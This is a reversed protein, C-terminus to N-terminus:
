GRSTSGGKGEGAGPYRTSKSISGKEGRRKRKSGREYLYRGLSTRKLLVERGRGWVGHAKGKEHLEEEKTMGILLKERQPEGGRKGTTLIGDRYSTHHLISIHRDGESEL